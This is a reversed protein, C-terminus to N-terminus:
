TWWHPKEQDQEEVPFYLDGLLRKRIAPPLAQWRRQLREWSYEAKPEPPIKQASPSSTAKGWLLYDLTGAVLLIAGIALLALLWVGGIRLLFFFMATTLYALVALVLIEQRRSTANTHM